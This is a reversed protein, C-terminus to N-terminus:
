KDLMLKLYKVEAGSVLRVLYMGTALNANGIEYGYTKGATGAEEAIVKVLQGKMDILEAKFHGNHELVFEVNTTSTFPNPYAKFTVSANSKVTEAPAAMRANSQCSGMTTGAHAMLAPVATPAVCITKGNHCVNIKDGKNGCTADIVTITASASVKCGAANTAEVTLTYVGKTTPTFTPNAINIDSLGTVNNWKYTTTPENDFSATLQATQSGQGLLILNNNTGNVQSPNLLTVDLQVSGPAVTVNVINSVESATTVFKYAGAEAAIYQNTTAGVIEDAGKFWNGAPTEWTTFNDMSYYKGPESIIELKTINEFDVRIFQGQSVNITYNQSGVETVGNYGKLQINIDGSSSSFYAGKFNFPTQDGKEITSTPAQYANFIINAPTLVGNPFLTGFTGSLYHMAETGANWNFGKYPNQIPLSYGQLFPLEDFNIMSEKRATLTVTQGACIAPSGNAEVVLAETQAFAANNLVFLMAFILLAVIGKPNKAKISRTHGLVQTEKYHNMMFYITQFNPLQTILFAINVHEQM